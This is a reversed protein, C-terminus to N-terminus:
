FEGNPNIYDRGEGGQKPDIANFPRPDEFVDGLVWADFEAQARLEVGVKYGQDWGKEYDELNQFSCNELTGYFSYWPKWWCLAKVAAHLRDRYRDQKMLVSVM